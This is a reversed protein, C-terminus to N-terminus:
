LLPADTVECKYADLIQKSNEDSLGGQGGYPINFGLVGAMAHVMRDLSRQDHCAGLDLVTTRAAGPYGPSDTGCKDPDSMKVKLVADDNFNEVFHICGKTRYALEKAARSFMERALPSAHGDVFAYLV